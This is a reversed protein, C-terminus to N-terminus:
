WGYLGPIVQVQHSGIYITNKIIILESDLKDIHQSSSFAKTGLM